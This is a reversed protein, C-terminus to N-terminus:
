TEASPTRGPSRCSRSDRGAADRHRHRIRDDHWRPLDAPLQDNRHRGRDDRPGAHPPSAPTNISSTFQWGAGAPVAGTITRRPAHEPRDAEHRDAHGPLQRPRSQSARHRRRRLQRDPLLRRGRREHRQLGDTRLDRPPQPPEGCRDRRRRRRVRPRPHAGHRRTRGQPRERLLHRERDRPLPQAAPARPPSTTPPRTATPSSSRSTSTTPWPTRRAAAGLGRDWNTIGGATWAAYCTRSLPARRPPRCRTLSPFNATAGVAPSITSFSFLSMARPRARCPTWSRTPQRSSNPVAAGVSGSLDLILAVDLGCSAPIEPNNRSQQWIGGSADLDDGSALM